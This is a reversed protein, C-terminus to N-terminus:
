SPAKKNRKPTWEWVSALGPDNLIARLVPLEGAPVRIIRTPEDPDWDNESIVLSGDEDINFFTEM